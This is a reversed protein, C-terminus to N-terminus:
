SLAALEDSAVLRQMQEMVEAKVEPYRDLVEFLAARFVIWEPTTEIAVTHQHNVRDGYIERRLSKLMFIAATTDDKLGRTNLADELADLGQERAAIVRQDFVPDNRRWDLFASKSIRAKRCAAVYVPKERLAALIVAEKEPTRITQNSM